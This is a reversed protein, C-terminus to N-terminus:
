ICKKIRKIKKRAGLFAVGDDVRFEHIMEEKTIEAVIWNWKQSLLFWIDSANIKKNESKREKMYELKYKIKM